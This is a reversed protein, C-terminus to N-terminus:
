FHPDQASAFRNLQRHDCELGRREAYDLTASEQTVVIESKGAFYRYEKLEYICAITPKPEKTALQSFDNRLEELTDRQPDLMQLMQNPKGKHLKELVGALLVGASAMSSGRFPTGFFIAGAFCEHIRMKEIIEPRAAALTIAKTVVLGGMSHALFVLPRSDCEKRHEVLADLLSAAANYLTQRIAQPGFWRSDYNYLLVRADPIENPIGGTQDNLWQFSPTKESGFSRHPDAGLGPVAII